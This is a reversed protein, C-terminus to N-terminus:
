VEALGRLKKVRMAKDNGNVENAWRRGLGCCVSVGGAHVEVNRLMVDRQRSLKWKLVELVEVV